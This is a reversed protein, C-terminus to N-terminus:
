MNVATLELVVSCSTKQELSVWVSVFVATPGIATATWLSVVKVNWGNNILSKFFPSSMFVFVSHLFLVVSRYVSFVFDVLVCLCLSHATTTLMLHQRWGRPNNNPTRKLPLAWCIRSKLVSSACQIQGNGHCRCSLFPSSNEHLEFVVCCGFALVVAPTIPNSNFITLCRIIM